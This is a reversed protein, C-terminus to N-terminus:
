GHSPRAKQLHLNYTARTPPLGRYLDFHVYGAEIIHGEVFGMSALGQGFAAENKALAARVGTRLYGIVPMASQGRAALPLGVAASGLLTIFERRKM